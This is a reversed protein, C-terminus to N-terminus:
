FYNHSLVLKALDSLCATSPVQCLGLDLFFEIAELGGQFSVNTYLSEVDMTVLFVPHDPWEVNKMLEIFEMTNKIYSPLSTVLPQLHFDVFASIKETLSGIAAVIPRGPPIERYQKHIKPLTYLVPTILHEVCM